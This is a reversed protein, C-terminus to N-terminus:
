AILLYAGYLVLLLSFVCVLCAFTLNPHIVSNESSPIDMLNESIFTVVKRGFCLALVMFLVLTIFQVTRGAYQGFIHKSGSALVLGALAAAYAPIYDKTENAFKYYNQM